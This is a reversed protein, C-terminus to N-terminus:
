DAYRISIYHVSSQGEKVAFRTIIDKGDFRSRYEYMELGGNRYISYDDGYAAIFDQMTSGVHIGRSTSYNPSYSILCAAKDHNYDVAFASGYSLRAFGTPATDNKSPQGFKGSVSNISDGLSVGGISIENSAKTSSTKQPASPAPTQTQTPQNSNTPSSNKSSRSCIDGVDEPQMAIGARELVTAIAAASSKYRDSQQKGKAMLLTFDTAVVVKSADKDYEQFMMDFFLEFLGQGADINHERLEAFKKTVDSDAYKELDSEYKMVYANLIASKAAGGVLPIKSTFVLATTLTGNFFKTKDQIIPRTKEVYNRLNEVEAPNQLGKIIEEELKTDDTQMLGQAASIALDATESIVAHTTSVNAFLIGICLSLCIFFKKM